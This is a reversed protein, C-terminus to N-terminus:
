LGEWSKKKDLADCIKKWNETYEEAYSLISLENNDLIIVKPKEEEFIEWDNAEMTELNFYLIRAEENGATVEYINKQVLQYIRGKRRVKKGEKLWEIAQNFNAM